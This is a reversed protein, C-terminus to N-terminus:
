EGFGSEAKTNLYDPPVKQGAFKWVKIGSSEWHPWDRDSAILRDRRFLSVFERHPESIEFGGPTRRYTLGNRFPKLLVSDVGGGTYMKMLEEITKPAEDDSAMAAEMAVCHISIFHRERDERAFRIRTHLVWTSLILASCIAIGIISKTITKRRMLLIEKGFPPNM